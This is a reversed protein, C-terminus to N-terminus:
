KSSVRTGQSRCEILSSRLLGLPNRSRIKPTGSALRCDLINRVCGGVSSRTSASICSSGLRADAAASWNSDDSLWSSTGGTRLNTMGSCGLIRRRGAHCRTLPRHHYPMNTTGAEAPIMEPFNRSFGTSCVFSDRKRSGCLAFGRALFLRSLPWGDAPQGEVTGLVAAKKSFVPVNPLSSAISNGDNAASNVYNKQLM